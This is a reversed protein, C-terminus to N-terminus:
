WADVFNKSKSFAKRNQNVKPKEIYDSPPDPYITPEISKESLFGEDFGLLSNYHPVQLDELSDFKVDDIIFSPVHEIKSKEVGHMDCFKNVMGELGRIDFQSEELLRGGYFVEMLNITSSIVLEGLTEFNTHEILLLFNNSFCFSELKPFECNSICEIKANSNLEFSKLYPFSCSKFSLKCFQKRPTLLAEYEYDYYFQYEYSKKFKVLSDKPYQPVEIEFTILNPFWLKEFKYYEKADGSTDLEIKMMTLHDSSITRLKSDPVNYNHFSFHNWELTNLNKLVSPCPKSHNINCMKIPQPAVGRRISVMPEFTKNFVQIKHNTAAMVPSPVNKLCNAFSKLRPNVMYYVFCYQVLHTERVTEADYADFNLDQLGDLVTMAKHPMNFDNTIIAISAELIPGFRKDVHYLEKLVEFSFKADDVFIERLINSPLDWISALKQSEGM